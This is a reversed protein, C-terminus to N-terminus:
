SACCYQSACRKITRASLPMLDFDKPKNNMTATKTVKLHLELEEHPPECPYEVRVVKGHYTWFSGQARSRTPLKIPVKPDYRTNGIGIQYSRAQGKEFCSVTILPDASTEGKTDEVKGFMTIRLAKIEAM